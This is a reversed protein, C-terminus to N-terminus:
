AISRSYRPLGSRRCHQGLARMDFSLLATAIDTDPNACYMPKWERMRLPLGGISRLRALMCASSM